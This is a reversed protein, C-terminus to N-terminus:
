VCRIGVQEDLECFMGKASAIRGAQVAQVATGCVVGVSFAHHASCSACDCQGAIRQGCAASSCVCRLTACAVILDRLETPSAQRLYTSMGGMLLELQPLNDSVWVKTAAPNTSTGLLVPLAVM